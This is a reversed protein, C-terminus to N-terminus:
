KYGEEPLLNFILRSWWGGSYFVRIAGILVFHAVVQTFKKGGRNMLQNNIKSLKSYRLYVVELSLFLRNIIEPM